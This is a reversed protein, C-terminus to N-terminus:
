SAEKELMIPNQKPPITIERINGLTGWDERYPIRLPEGPVGGGRPGGIFPCENMKPPNYGPSDTLSWLRIM